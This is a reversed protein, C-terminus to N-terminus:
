AIKRGKLLIKRDVYEGGEIHPALLERVRSAV